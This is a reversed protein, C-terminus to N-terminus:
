LFTPLNSVHPTPIVDPTHSESCSSGHHSVLLRSAVVLVHLCIYEQTAVSFAGHLPLITTGWVVGYLITKYDAIIKNPETQLRTDVITIEKVLDKISM